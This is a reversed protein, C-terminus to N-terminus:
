AREDGGHETETPTRCVDADQASLSASMARDATVLSRRLISRRTLLAKRERCSQISRGHMALQIQHAPLSQDQEEADPGRNLASQEQGDHIDARVSRMRPYAGSPGDHWWERRRSTIACQSPRDVSIRNLWNPRDASNLHSAYVCSGVRPSM